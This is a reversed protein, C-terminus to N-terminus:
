FMTIEIRECLATDWGTPETGNQNGSINETRRIFQFIEQEKIVRNWLPRVVCTGSLVREKFELGLGKVVNPLV